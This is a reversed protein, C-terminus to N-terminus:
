HQVPPAGALREKIIVMEASLGRMQDLVSGVLALMEPAVKAQSGSLAVLNLLMAEIGDLRKYIDRETNEM